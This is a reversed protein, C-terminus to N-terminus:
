EHRLEEIEKGRLLLINRELVEEPRTRSEKRINKEVRTFNKSRGVVIGGELTTRKGSQLGKGLGKYGQTYWDRKKPLFLYAV